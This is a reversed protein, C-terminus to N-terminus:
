KSPRYIWAQATAQDNNAYGGALLVSGDNLKTETMFHRADNMQGAAVLFKGGLPDFIEAERSGGALLLKGSDLQVAEEPLKFRAYNLQSTATFKGTRPDYIEASSLNGNWDREDSGGAILVRGDPLLGATHKYRATTLSGTEAFRHTQPDYLEAVANVREGRGGAILVRGDRLLTASHSVRAFHMAGVPQFTMTAAHFVEAAAIGAPSDAQGGGTILVDGDALLTARAGGHPVSMRRALVTFKATVPDFLEAEDTCGHGIWGGAILVKGTRLLVAIHGVRRQEMDRTPTFKGTAPDYLEASKYFDQNRRMGGAILVKGNPLLTATHGSRPEFMPAAATVSGLNAVGAHTVHFTTPVVVLGLSIGVCGLLRIM